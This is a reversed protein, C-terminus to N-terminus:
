GRPNSEDCGVRSVRASEILDSLWVVTDFGERMALHRRTDDATPDNVVQLARCGTRVRDVLDVGPQLREAEALLGEITVITARQTSM